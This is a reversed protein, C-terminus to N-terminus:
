LRSVVVTFQNTTPAAGFSVTANMTDTHFVDALVEDFPASNRYIVVSILRTNLNHTILFSVSTNDGVQTIIKNADLKQQLKLPTVIKTDNTGTLTDSQSAIAAVGIISETAQQRNTEIINFNAGVAAQSGGANAVFCIIIDGIDVNIGSAGGIKGAVSVIYSDGVVAAPYDPNTSCDLVGKYDLLGSVAIAISDDVYKKNSAESDSVPTPLGTIRSVNNADFNTLLKM